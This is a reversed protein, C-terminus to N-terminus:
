VNLLLHEREWPSIVRMFAEYEARKVAAFATVFEEGLVGRLEASGTLAEIGELLSYPLDRARTYSDTEHALKSRPALKGVMGLYGCALCAAIALYPNADAGAVRNEVRRAEPPAQPSRLGTTRNDEAWDLNIPAAWGPMLRRYSNVYPAVLAIADHFFAQQGGIFWDHLESASGDPNSFVNRGADDQVSFHIHMASGPQDAYPRAMFTAYCGCRLAAERILRKFLFMEDALRIPHGHVTNLELQAPGAEQIITDISINQAEAYDYILEIVPEYEDVGSLSFAQNGHSQRGSRGIPPELPLDPDTNPQTLYFELEPAVVPTWGRAAYLDCVRRLVQRPALPFRDGDRDVIDHIIQLSIGTAWPVARATSLDPVLTLDPDTHIIPNNEDAYGGNITAFFMSTPLKIGPERVFKAAPMVKGRAIGALDAVVCEIEEVRRSAVWARLGEMDDPGLEPSETLSLQNPQM